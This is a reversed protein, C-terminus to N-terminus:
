RGRPQFLERVNRLVRRALAEVEVRRIQAAQRYVEVVWAPENRKGRRRQPALYPADTELLLREEPVERVVERLRETKPYTINTAFSIHLGLDLARRATELSGSFCHIVGPLKGKGEEELIALVDEDAKRSHVIVPAGIQIAARVLERFVDRQRQRPCLDHHYDLGIEGIAVVKREKSLRLIEALAVPNYHLAKHPHVGAAAFVVDHDHALDRALRSDAVDTGVTLLFELGAERARAVVEKRDPDFADETLHAHSDAFVAAPGPARGRSTQSPM